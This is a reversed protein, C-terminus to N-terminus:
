TRAAKFSELVELINKKKQIKDLKRTVKPTLKPRSTAVKDYSFTATKIANEEVYLLIWLCIAMLRASLFRWLLM